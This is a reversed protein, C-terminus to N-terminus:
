FARGLHVQRHEDSHARLLSSVESSVTAIIVQVGQRRAFKMAPVFDTNGTVLVIRDVIHMSALWAVDLGIKIDVGKQTFEPQFDDACVPRSAKVLDRM